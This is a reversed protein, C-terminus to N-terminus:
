RVIPLVGSAERIADQNDKNDLALQSLAVAAVRAMDASPPTYILEVFARVGGCIRIQWCTWWWVSCLMSIRNDFKLMQVVM